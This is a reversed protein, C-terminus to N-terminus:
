QTRRHHLFNPKSCRYKKEISPLSAKLRKIRACAITWIAKFLFLIKSGQGPTICASFTPREFQLWRYCLSTSAICAPIRSEKLTVNEGSLFEFAKKKEIERSLSRDNRVKCLLFFYKLGKWSSFYDHHALFTSRTLHLLVRPFYTSFAM